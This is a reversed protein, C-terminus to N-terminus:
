MTSSPKRLLDHYGRGFRQRGLRKKVGAIGGIKIELGGFLQVIENTHHPLVPCDFRYSEARRHRDIAVVQEHEPRGSGSTM